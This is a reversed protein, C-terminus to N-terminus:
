LWPLFRPWPSPTKQAMHVEVYDRWRGHPKEPDGFDREDDRHWPYANAESDEPPFEPEDTATTAADNNEAPAATLPDSSGSPPLPDKSGSPPLPVAPVPGTGAKGQASGRSKEALGQAPGPCPPPILSDPERHHPNQHRIFNVIQIYRRGSVAYRLIFAPSDDENKKTVLEDLLRDVRESGYPFVLGKIRSPRDELRGERDAITWLGAFLLRAAHSCEALQDNQFFGPKLQRARAM